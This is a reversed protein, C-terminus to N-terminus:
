EDPRLVVIEGEAELARVIDLIRHHAAEVDEVKVPGKAAMDEKLLTVARKSMNRFIKDQVEPAVAKLAKALDNTDVQRLVKQVSRDDLLVLDEFGFMRKWIEEDTEGPRAVVIEDKAELARVIDLIRQQAAEVDAMRAPGKALKEKLEAAAHESMNRAIKDYTEPDAARLALVLDEMEVPRLAKQISRDDLLVLDDFVFMRKKVEEAIEPDLKELREIFDIETQRPVNNLYEVVGRMLREYLTKM